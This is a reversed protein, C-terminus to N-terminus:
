FIIKNEQTQKVEIALVNGLVYFEIYKFPLITINERNIITEKSNLHTDLWYYVVIIPCISYSKYVKNM